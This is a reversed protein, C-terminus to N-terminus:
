HQAMIPTLLELSNTLQALGWGVFAAVIMVLIFEKTFM